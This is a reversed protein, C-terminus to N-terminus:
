GYIRMFDLSSKPAKTLDGVKNEFREIELNLTYPTLQANFMQAREKQPCRNAPIIESKQRQNKQLEVTQKGVFVNITTAYSVFLLFL